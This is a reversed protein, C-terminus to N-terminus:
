RFLFPRQKFVKHRNLIPDAETQDFALNCHFLTRYRTFCRFSATAIPGKARDALVLTMWRQSRRGRVTRGPLLQPVTSLTNRRSRGLLIVTLYRGVTFSKTTM